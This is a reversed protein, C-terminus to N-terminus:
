GEPGGVTRLVELLQHEGDKLSPQVLIPEEEHVIKTDSCTSWRAMTFSRRSRMIHRASDVLPIWGLSFESCLTQIVRRGPERAGKRMDELQPEVNAATEPEHYRLHEGHKPNGETEEIRPVKPSSANWYPPICRWILARNTMFHVPVGLIRAYPTAPLHMAPRITRARGARLPPARM